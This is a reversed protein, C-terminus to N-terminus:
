RVVVQDRFRALTKDGIGSVQRLDEVAAFPGHADRYAIIRAALAPGISPLTELEVATAENVNLHGGATGGSARVTNGAAQQGHSALAAPAPGGIGTRGAISASTSASAGRAGASLPAASPSGPGATVESRAPVFLQEGDSVAAALNVAAPDAQATLGGAAAVADRARAGEPLSVVAPTAVAGTVYVQMRVATATPGPTGTPVPVIAVASQRPDRLTWVVAGLATLNLLVVLLYSRLHTLIPPHTPM